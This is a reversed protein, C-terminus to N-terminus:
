APAAPLVEVNWKYGDVTGPAPNISQWWHLAVNNVVGFVHRLAAEGEGSEIVTMEEERETPPAEVGMLTAINLIEDVDTLKTAGSPSSGIGPVLLQGTQVVATNVPLEEDAWGPWALWGCKAAGYGIASQYSRDMYIGCPEAFATLFADRNAASETQEFDLFPLLHAWEEVQAIGNRTFWAAQGEPTGASGDYFHYVGVQLGMHFADRVDGILYPNLYNDGQTAKVHVVDYGASKVDAFNFVDGNHNNSSIDIGKM